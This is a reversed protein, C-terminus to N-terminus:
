PRKGATRAMRFKLQKVSRKKGGKEKQIQEIYRLAEAQEEGTLNRIKACINDRDTM